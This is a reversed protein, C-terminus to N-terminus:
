NSIQAPLQCLSRTGEGERPYCIPATFLVLAFCGGGLALVFVKSLLLSLFSSWCTKQINLTIYHLSEGATPDPNYRTPKQLFPLKFYTKLFQIQSIRCFKRECKRYVTEVLAVKETNGPPMGFRMLIGEAIVQWFCWHGCYCQWPSRRPADQSYFYLSSFSIGHLDAKTKPVRLLQVPCWQPYQSAFKTPQVLQHKRGLALFYSLQGKKGSKSGTHQHVSCDTQRWM